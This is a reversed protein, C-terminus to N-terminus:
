APTGLIDVFERPSVIRVGEYAGLAQLKRDGTVLYDAWASVATALVRDDEPHTAVGSVTVSLDVMRARRRLLSRARGLQDASLRRVFYESQWTHELENLIHGSLALEFAGQECADIIQGPSALPSLFGSALVNTDLTAVIM